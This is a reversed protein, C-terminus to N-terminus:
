RKRKRRKDFGGCLDQFEGNSLESSAFTLIKWGRISVIVEGAPVFIEAVSRRHFCAM